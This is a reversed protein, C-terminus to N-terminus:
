VDEIGKMEIVMSGEVRTQSPQDLGLLQAERKQVQVLTNMAALRGSHDAATKGWDVTGDRKRAPVPTGNSMAVAPDSQVIEEAAARMADLQAAMDQILEDRARLPMKAREARVIQGVRGFGIGFEEAVEKYTAGEALRALLAANREDKSQM